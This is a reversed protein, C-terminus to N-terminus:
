AEVILVCVYLRMAFAAVIHALAFLSLRVSASKPLYVCFYSFIDLVHNCQCM